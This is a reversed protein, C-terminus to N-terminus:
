VSCTIFFLTTFFLWLAGLLGPQLLEGHGIVKQTYEPNTSKFLIQMAPYQMSLSSLFINAPVRGLENWEQWFVSFSTNMNACYLFIFHSFPPYIIHGSVCFMPLHWHLTPSKTGHMPWCTGPGKFWRLPPTIVARQSAVWGELVWPARCRRWKNRLYECFLLQLSPFASLPPPPHLPQPHIPAPIGKPLNSTLRRFTLQCLLIVQTHTPTHSLAPTPIITAPSLNQTTFCILPLPVLILSDIWKLRNQGLNLINNKRWVFTTTKKKGGFEMFYKCLVFDCVFM